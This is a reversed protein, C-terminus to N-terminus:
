ASLGFLRLLVHWSLAADPLAFWVWGLVVFHFTLLIGGWYIVRRLAPKEKLGQYFMRTRDSYLKHVFLGLGHWAGWMVFNLAIGHWLGIVIMTSMQTILVVLTPSPRPNRTMLVRTLPTFVYFRAWTSLTIHWSQWFTAINSKLYPLNFNEPLNVGYLRGIGIAIDSYGGFDLYLRFAYAYLLLWLDGPRRAQNALTVNLAFLALSDALVFKKFIGIVIRSGGEVARSADLASLIRFDKVFREARDIPGATYAPFFILYTLYERLTLAPLKGTQRDRLTHILRFAVYSFGLWGVDIVGALSLPRGAQARLWGALGITLPESKFVVFLAIMLLLAVWIARTRSQIMAGFAIFVVGAGILVVLIDPIAPPPSPLLYLWEGALALILILAVVIGLTLLNELELRPANDPRTILWGAVALLLTATPLIFDLPQVPIMPQLWYIALVSGILLAWGRWRAPIVIRYLAAGLGFVLISTLTM